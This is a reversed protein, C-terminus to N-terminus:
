VEKAHATLWTIVDTYCIGKSDFKDHKDDIIAYAVRAKAGPKSSFRWYEFGEEVILAAGNAFDYRYYTKDVQPVELWIGWNRYNNLWERRGKENKLNLGKQVKPSILEDLSKILKGYEKDSIPLEAYGSNISQQPEAPEVNVVLGDRSAKWQLFQEQEADSLYDGTYILDSINRAVEEWTLKVNQYPEFCIFEMGKESYSRHMDSAAFGHYFTPKNGYNYVGKIFDSFNGELPKNRYRDVIQFKADKVYIDVGTLGVKIIESEARMGAAEPITEPEDVVESNEPNGSFNGVANFEEVTQIETIDIVTQGPLQGASVSSKKANASNSEGSQQAAKRQEIVRQVKSLPTEIDILLLDTISAIEATATPSGSHKAIYKNWFTVARGITDVNDQPTVIQIFEDPCYRLRCFEALQSKSYKDYKDAIRMPSQTNHALAYIQMLEYTVTKKFGFKDEALETINQYGLAKYYKLNNAETLRFGIVFFSHKIDNLDNYVNQVFGEAMIKAEQEELAALAANIM